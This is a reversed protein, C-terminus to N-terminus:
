VLWHIYYLAIKNKGYLNKKITLIVTLHQVESVTCCRLQTRSCGYPAFIHLDAEKNSLRCPPSALQIYNENPQCSPIASHSAKSILPLLLRAVEEEQKWRLYDSSFPFTIGRLLGRPRALKATSLSTQRGVAKLLHRQFFLLM